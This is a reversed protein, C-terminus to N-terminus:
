MLVTQLTHATGLMAPKQLAKMEHKGLINSLYKRVSISITGTAGNSSTDSQKEM